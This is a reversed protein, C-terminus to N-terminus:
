YSDGDLIVWNKPYHAIAFFRGAVKVKCSVNEVDVLTALPSPLLNLV